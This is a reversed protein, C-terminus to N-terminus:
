YEDDEATGLGYNLIENYRANAEESEKKDRWAEIESCIALMEDVILEASSPRVNYLYGMMRNMAKPSGLNRAVEMGLEDPFGLERIAKVLENRTRIWEASNSTM